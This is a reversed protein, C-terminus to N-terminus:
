GPTREGAIPAQAGAVRAALAGLRSGTAMARRLDVEGPPWSAGPALEVLLGAVYADGSGTADLMPGPLDEGALEVRLDGAAAASGAAGDTVIVVPALGQIVEAASVAGPVPEGVLVEAEGASLVLLDPRAVALRARFRSVRDADPPISGGAVSLWVAQPRAGLTEALADGTRDDLLAYGSCHLWGAEFLAEAAFSPDLSQRDSLMTREGTEDLMVLVVTSRDAPLAALMVRDAQLAERLLRGAPDDALSAVLRVAAGQRALRVAVNAGQGGPGIRIAAPTDSRARSPASPSVVVDLSLDGIVVFETVV